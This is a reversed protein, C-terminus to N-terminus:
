HFFHQEDKAEEKMQAHKSREREIHQLVDAMADGGADNGGQELLNRYYQAHESSQPVGVGREYMDVLNQMAIESGLVAANQSCYFAKEFDQKTGNGHYYMTGLNVMCNPDGLKAGTKWYKFALPMNVEQGHTGSYYINGLLFCADRDPDPPSASGKLLQFVLNQDAPEASGEEKSSELQALHYLAVKHGAQASKNLLQWYLLQHQESESESAIVALQYMADPFGTDAALEYLEMSSRLEAARLLGLGSRMSKLKEIMSTAESDDYVPSTSDMSKLLMLTVLAREHGGNAAKRLWHVARHLRDAKKSSCSSGESESPSSAESDVSVAKSAALRRKRESRLWKKFDFQESPNGDPSVGRDLGLFHDLHDIDIYYVPEPMQGGASLAVEDFSGTALYLGYYYMASLNEGRSCVVELWSSAESLAAPDGDGSAAALLIALKAEEDGKESRCALTDSYRKLLSSDGSTLTSFQPFRTEIQKLLDATPVISCL